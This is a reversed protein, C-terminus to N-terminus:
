KRAAILAFEHGNERGLIEVKPNWFGAENLIAILGPKNFTWCIVGEEDGAICEVILVKGGPKLVRRSEKLASIPNEIHHLSYILTAADFEGDKAFTMDYVSGKVCTVLDEVGDSHAKKEAHSFGKPSIDLGVIRFGGEKALFVDLTGDGCGLDLVTKIGELKQLIKQYPRM